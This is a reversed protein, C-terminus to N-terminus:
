CRDIRDIADSAKCARRESLYPLIRELINRVVQKNQLIWNYPQKKNSSCMTAESVRGGWVDQLRKAVDLDTTKVRLVASYCRKEVFICGEGEFLGIAWAEEVTM